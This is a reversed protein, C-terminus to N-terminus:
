ARGSPRLRWPRFVFLSRRSFCLGQRPQHNFLKTPECNRKLPCISGSPEGEADCRVTGSYGGTSGAIPQFHAPRDPTMRQALTASRRNDSLVDRTPCNASWLPNLSAIPKEVYVKSIDASNGSMYRLIASRSFDRLLHLLERRVAREATPIDASDPRCQHKCIRFSRCTFAIAQRNKAQTATTAAGWRTRGRM